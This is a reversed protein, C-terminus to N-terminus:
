RRRRRARALVGVSGLALLVATSPEPIPGVADFDVITSPGPAPFQWSDADANNVATGNTLNGGDVELSIAATDINYTFLATHWDNDNINLGINTNGSSEILQVVTGAIRIGGIIDTNGNGLMRAVLDQENAPGYDRIRFAFESTLVGTTQQTFNATAADPEGFAGTRNIELFNSGHNAPAPANLITRTTETDGPNATETWPLGVPPTRQPNTPDTGVVNPDGELSDYFVFSPGNKVQIAHAATALLCFVGISVAAVYISCRM